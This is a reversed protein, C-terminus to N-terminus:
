RREGRSKSAAVKSHLESAFLFIKYSLSTCHGSSRETVHCNYIVVIFVSFISCFVAVIARPAFESLPNATGRISCM